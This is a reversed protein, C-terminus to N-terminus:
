GVFITVVFNDFTLLKAVSIFHEIGDISTGEACDNATAVHFVLVTALNGNLDALVLLKIYVVGVDLNSHQLPDLFPVSIVIFPAALDYFENIAESKSLVDDYYKFTKAVVQVLM